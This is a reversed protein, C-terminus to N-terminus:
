RALAQLFPQGFVDRVVVVNGEDNPLGALGAFAAGLEEPPADPFPAHPFGGRAVAPAFSEPAAVLVEHGGDRLATAFPVLPRLHGSGATTSVLVRM